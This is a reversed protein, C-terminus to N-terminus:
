ARWPLLLSTVTLWTNVVFFPWRKPTIQPSHQGNKTTLAQWTAHRGALRRVTSVIRPPGPHQGGFVRCTFSYRRHPCSGHEFYRGEGSRNMLKDSYGPVEGTRVRRIPVENFECEGVRTRPNLSLHFASGGIKSYWLVYRAGGPSYLGRFIAEAGSSMSESRWFTASLGRLM